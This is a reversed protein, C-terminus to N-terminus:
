GIRVYKNFTTLLTDVLVTIITMSAMGCLFPAEDVLMQINDLM